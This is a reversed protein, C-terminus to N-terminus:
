HYFIHIHCCHGKPDYTSDVYGWGYNNKKTINFQKLIDDHIKLRKEELEYSISDDAIMLQVHTLKGTEFSMSLHFPIKEIFVPEKIYIFRNPIQNKYLFSLKFDDFNYLPSLTVANNIIINGNKLNIM